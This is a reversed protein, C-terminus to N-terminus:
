RNILILMVMALAISRDVWPKVWQLRVGMEVPKYPEVDDPQLSYLRSWSNYWQSKVEELFSEFNSYKKPDIAVSRTIYSSIGLGAKFSKESLVHEKNSSLICQIVYHKEYAIKLAGIKLPLSQDALNRHGEPYVVLPLDRFKFHNAIKKALSQRDKKDRRFYLVRGTLFGYLASCPLAFIVAFRSLHSCHGIALSDIFFDAYSRHNCLIYRARPDVNESQKDIYLKTGLVKLLFIETYKATEIGTFFFFLANFFLLFQSLFVIFILIM